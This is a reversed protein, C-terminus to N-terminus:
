LLESYNHSLKVQWVNDFSDKIKDNHSIVFLSRGTYNKLLPVVSEVGGEDLSLELLEDLILFDFGVLKHFAFVDAIKIRQQQGSSYSHYDTIKKKPHFVKYAIEEKVTKNKKDAQSRIEVTLADSISSLIVNTEFELSALFEECLLNPIGSKSFGKVWYELYPIESKLELIDNQIKTIKNKYDEIEEKTQKQIKFYPNEEEKIKSLTLQYEKKREEVSNNNALTYKFESKALKLNTQLDKLQQELTTIQSLVSKIKDLDANTQELKLSYEEIKSKLDDWKKLETGEFTKIFLVLDEEKLFYPNEEEQILLLENEYEEKREESSQNKQLLLKLEAKKHNLEDQLKAQKESSVEMFSIIEKDALISINFKNINKEVLAKEKELEKKQIKLKQYEESEEALRDCFQNLIPCKSESIANLSNKCNELTHLLMSQQKKNEELSATAKDLCRLAESYKSKHNEILDDVEKKQEKIEKIADEINTTDELILANIRKQLEKINKNRKKEFNDADQRVTVVQKKSAEIDAQLKIFYKSKEELQKIESIHESQSKELAVRQEIKDKEKTTIKFLDDETKKMKEKLESLLIQKETTDTFVCNKIKSELDDVTNKKNMEYKQIDLEVAPLRSEKASLQTEYIPLSDELSKIQEKLLAFDEKVKTQRETWKNLNLIDYLIPKRESEKLEPFSPSRLSFITSSYLTNENNLELFDSINHQTVRRDSATLSMNGDVDLFTSNGHETSNRYKTITVLHGEKDFVGKIFCNKGKNFPLEDLPLGDSTKDLLLYELAQRISSKGSGNDGLILVSGVDDLNTLSLEKWSRFNTLHLEKLIM